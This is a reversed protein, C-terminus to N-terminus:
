WCSCVFTHYLITLLNELCNSGMFCFFMSSCTYFYSYILIMVLDIYQHLWDLWVKRREKSLDLLANKLPALLKDDSNGPESKLNGLSRFFNTYDVKDFAMHNLLKSLLDKNYVKLGVKASMHRQYESMFTDAYRCIWYTM